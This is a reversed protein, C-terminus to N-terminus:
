IRMRVYVQRWRHIAWARWAAAKVPYTAHHAIHRRLEWLGYTQVAHSTIALTAATRWVPNRSVVEEADDPDHGHEVLLAALDAWAPGLHAHRWDLVCVAGSPDVVLEAPDIATHVLARGACMTAAVPERYAFETVHAAPWEDM